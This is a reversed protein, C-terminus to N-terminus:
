SAVSAVLQGGYVLLALLHHQGSYIGWGALAAFALHQLAPLGVERKGQMLKWANGLGFAAM